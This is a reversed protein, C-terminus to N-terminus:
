TGKLTKVIHEYWKEILYDQWTSLFIGPKKYPASRVNVWNTRGANDYNLIEYNEDNKLFVLFIKAQPRGEGSGGSVARLFEPHVM